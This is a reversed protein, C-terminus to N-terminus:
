LQNPIARTVVRLARLRLVGFRGGKNTRPFRQPVPSPTENRALAGLRYIRAGLIGAPIHPSSAALLTSLQQELASAVQANRIVLAIETDTM